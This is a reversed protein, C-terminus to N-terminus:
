PVDVPLIYIAALYIGMHVSFYLGLGIFLIALWRRESRRSLDVARSKLIIYIGLAFALGGVTYQYIM